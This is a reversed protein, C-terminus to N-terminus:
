ASKLRCVFQYMADFARPNEQEFQWWQDLRGPWSAHEFRAQFLPWLKHGNTFGQLTLGNEQMFAEIEPLTLQVEHANLALDRFDSLAYFDDSNVLSQGETSGALRARYRRAEDDSVAGNPFAPSARLAAINRRSVASYLGIRMLGGVKLKSLLRAWAHFPDATHHLVGVAEIIDFPALPTEFAHLDAQLFQVNTVAMEAAKTAAYGLSARSLDVALVTARPGYCIASTLAHRGTGAGAILVHFPRDLFAIEDPKCLTGLWGHASEDDPRHFTTWRPYPNQEYHGAVDTTIAGTDEVNLASKISLATQRMGQEQLLKDVLLQGLAKPKVAKLRDPTEDLSIVDAFPRYLLLMILTKLHSSSVGDSSGVRSWGEALKELLAKEDTDVVFVHENNWCQQILSLCFGFIDKQVLDDANATLLARRIAIFLREVDYRKNVGNVLAAHLLPHTLGSARPSRLAANATSGGEDSASLVLQGFPTAAVLYDTAARAVVDHDIGQHHFAALLGDPDLVEPTELRCSQLLCSLERAIAIDRPATRLALTLTRAAEDNFEIFRQAQALALWLASNRPEAACLKEFAAVALTGKGTAVADRAVSLLAERRDSKAVAAVPKMTSTGKHVWPAM